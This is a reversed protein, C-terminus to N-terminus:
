RRKRRARKKKRGSKKQFFFLYIMPLIGVTNFIFLCVFWGLQRNKGSKWLAIAEWVSSWLSVLIILLIIAPSLGFYNLINFTM